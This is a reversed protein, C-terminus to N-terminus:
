EVEETLKIRGKIFTDVRGYSDTLEIDYVYTKRMALEKTDEPKLELICTDLPIDKEVLVEADSYKTKMAFRVHDNPLPIYEEGDKVMKIKAILSDGRTLSIDIQHPDIRSFSVM